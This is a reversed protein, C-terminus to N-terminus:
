EKKIYLIVSKLFIFNQLDRLLLNWKTILFSCFYFLYITLKKYFLYKIVINCLDTILYQNIISGIDESLMDVVYMRTEKTRRHMCFRLTILKYFQIPVYRHILVINRYKIYDEKIERKLIEITKDYSRYRCGNEDTNFQDSSTRIDLILNDNQVMDYYYNAFQTIIEDM